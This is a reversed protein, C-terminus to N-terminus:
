IPPRQTRNEHYSCAHNSIVLLTYRISLPICLNVIIVVHNARIGCLSISHTSYHHYSLSQPIVALYKTHYSVRVYKDTAKM